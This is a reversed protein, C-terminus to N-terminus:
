YKMLKSNKNKIIKLLDKLMLKIEHVDIKLDASDTLPEVPQDCMNEKNNLEMRKIKNQKRRESYIEEYKRRKLTKLWKIEDENLSAKLKQFEFNNRGNIDLMKLITENIGINNLIDVM